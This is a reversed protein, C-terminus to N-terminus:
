IEVVLGDYASYVDAPLDTTWDAYKGMFHSIHTIYAQRPRLEAIVALAESLSYHAPHQEKRLANIILVDLGQLKHYEEEAIASADTIFAMDDVRYGLIDLWGHKVQIPVIHMGAIHLSEEGSIYHKTARPAGPYSGKGFAYSFRQEVEDVVRPLGYLPLDTQQRFNFPRIDDLGIMHDNHEHTYLVADIRPIAGALMQQRLDPGTDMLIFRGGQELVVSSRLRRDRPDDSTCVECTCGIVPVGQSTGTGLIHIKM